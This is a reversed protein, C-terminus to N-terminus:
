QLDVELLLIMFGMKISFNRQIVRSGEAQDGGVTLEFSRGWSTREVTLYTAEGSAPACQKVM